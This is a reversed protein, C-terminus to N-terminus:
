PKGSSYEILNTIITPAFGLVCEKAGAVLRAHAGIAGALDYAGAKGVWSDSELLTSLAESSLEDIEVTAHEVETEVVWISEKRHILATGSWVNHRRGSLRLLMAAAGNRDVPQGMAINIDDPDEVLTDAVIIFDPIENESESQLTFEAIASDIKSALIKEVQGGVNMGIPPIIESSVLPNASFEVDLGKLAENLLEFRRTSASALHVKLAKMM